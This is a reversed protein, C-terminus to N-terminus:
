LLLKKNHGVHTSQAIPNTLLTPLSTMMVEQCPMRARELHPGAAMTLHIHHIHLITVPPTPSLHEVLKPIYSKQPCKLSSHHVLSRIQSFIFQSSINVINLNILAIRVLSTGILLIWSLWAKTKGEKKNNINWPSNTGVKCDGKTSLALPIEQVKLSTVLQQYTNSCGLVM